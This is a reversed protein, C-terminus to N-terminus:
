GARVIEVSCHAHAAVAASVSGILLREFRGTGRAGTFICDAGWSEAESLLLKKPDEEKVVASTALGAAKLRGEASAIMQQTAAREEAIWEAVRAMMPESGTPPITWAANVLRAQSGQPWHRAAAARVAADAHKSGDIGIILRIPTDPEDVRGRAIRVSCHAQQVLQQSVSGFFVRGIASRGHSGAIILDANWREAKDIIVGAPTGFGAEPEINWAPRLSRVRAAARRALAMAEMRRDVAELVELSSPPPLWHEIVSLIVAETREPLGARLLDDLAADACESGDYAILVKMVSEKEKM